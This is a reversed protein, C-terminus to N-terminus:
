VGQKEFVVSWDNPVVNAKVRKISWGKGLFEHLKKAEGGAENFFYDDLAYGATEGVQLIVGNKIQCGGMYMRLIPFERSMLAQVLKANRLFWFM